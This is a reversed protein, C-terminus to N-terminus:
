KPQHSVSVTKDGQKHLTITGFETDLTVRGQDDWKHKQSRSTRRGTGDTERTAVKVRKDNIDTIFLQKKLTVDLEVPQEVLEPVPGSMGNAEGFMLPSYVFDSYSKIYRASNESEWFLCYLGPQDDKGSAGKELIICWETPDNEAGVRHAPAYGVRKFISFTMAYAISGEPVVLDNGYATSTQVTNKVRATRRYVIEHEMLVSEEEAVGDFFVATGPVAEMGGPGSWQAPIPGSPPRYPTACAAVALLLGFAIFKNM